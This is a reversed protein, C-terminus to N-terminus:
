VGFGNDPSTETKMLLHYEFTTKKTNTPNEVQHRPENTQKNEM